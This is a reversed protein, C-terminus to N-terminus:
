LNTTHKTGSNRVCRVPLSNWHRGLIFNGIFAALTHHNFANMRLNIASAKGNFSDESFFDSHFRVDKGIAMVLDDTVDQIAM